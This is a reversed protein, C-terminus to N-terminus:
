SVVDQPFHFGGKRLEVVLGENDDIPDGTGFPDRLSITARLPLDRNGRLIDFVARSALAAAAASSPIIQSWFRVLGAAALEGSLLSRVPWTDLGMVRMALRTKLEFSTSSNALDTIEDSSLRGNFLPQDPQEIDVFPQWDMDTAMVVPVGYQRAAQRLSVKADINDVMEVIVEVGHEELIRGTSERDLFETCDAVQIYPNLEWLERAVSLSKPLGLDALGSGPLRNFNSPAIVDPDALVFSGIGLRALQGAVARGTSLGAILVTANRLTWQESRSIILYNRSTIIAWYTDPDPIRAVLRRWPLVVWCWSPVPLLARIDEPLSALEATWEGAAVLRMDTIGLETNCWREVDMAPQDDLFALESRSDNHIM